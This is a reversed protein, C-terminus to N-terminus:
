VRDGFICDNVKIAMYDHIYWGHDFYLYDKEVDEVEYVTNWEPRGYGDPDIGISILEKSLEINLIFQDGVKWTM